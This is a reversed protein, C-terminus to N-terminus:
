KEVKLALYINYMLYYKSNNSYQKENTIGIEGLPYLKDFIEIGIDCSIYNSISYLYVNYLKLLKVLDDLKNITKESEKKGILFNIKGHNFQNRIKVYYDFIKWFGIDKLNKYYKGNTSEILDKNEVLSKQLIIKPKKVLKNTIVKFLSEAHSIEYLLNKSLAILKEDNENIGIRDNSEIRLEINKFYRDFIEFCELANDIFEYYKEINNFFDNLEKKQDIFEKFEKFLYNGKDDIFNDLVEGEIYTINNKNENFFNAIINEKRM